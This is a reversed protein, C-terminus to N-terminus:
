RGDPSRTTLFFRRGNYGATAIPEDSYKAVVALVDPSPEFWEGHARWQKLQRHLEAESVTGDAVIALLRLTESGCRALTELRALPRASEGIKIRKTHTGEIFYVPKPTKVPDEPLVIVNFAELSIFGHRCLTPLHEAIESAPGGVESALAEHIPVDPRLALRNGRMWECALMRIELLLFRAARPIDARDILGKRVPVWPGYTTRSM